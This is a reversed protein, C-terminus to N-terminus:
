KVYRDLPDKPLSISDAYLRPQRSKLMALRGSCEIEREYSGISKLYPAVKKGLALRIPSDPKIAEQLGPIPLKLVSWRAYAADLDVKSDRLIKGCEDVYTAVEAAAWLICADLDKNCDLAQASAAGPLTVWILAPVILHRTLPTM